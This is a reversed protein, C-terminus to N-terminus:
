LQWNCSIRMLTNSFYNINRERWMMPNHRVLLMNLPACLSCPFIYIYQLHFLFHWLAKHAPEFVCLQCILPFIFYFLFSYSLFLFIFNFSLSKLSHISPCFPLWISGALSERYKIFCCCFTINLNSYTGYCLRGRTM